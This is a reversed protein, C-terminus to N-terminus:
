VAVFENKGEFPIGGGCEVKAPGIGNLFDDGFVLGGVDKQDKAEVFKIGAVEFRAFNGGVLQCFFETSDGICPDSGGIPIFIMADVFHKLRGGIRGGVEEGFFEGEGTGAITTVGINLTVTNPHVTYCTPQLCGGSIFHGHLWRALAAPRETCGDDGDICCFVTSVLQIM